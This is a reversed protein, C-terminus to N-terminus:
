LGAGSGALGSGLFLVSLFIAFGDCWSWGTSLWSTQGGVQPVADVWRWGAPWGGGASGDCGKREKPIFLTWWCSCRLGLRGARDPALHSPIALYITM